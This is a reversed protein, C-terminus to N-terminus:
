LYFNTTSVNPCKVLHILWDFNVLTELTTLDVFLFVNNYFKPVLSILMVNDGGEKVNNANLQM